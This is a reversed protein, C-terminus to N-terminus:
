FLWVTFIHYSLPFSLTREKKIKLIDLISRTRYGTLHISLNVSKTTLDYFYVMIYIFM